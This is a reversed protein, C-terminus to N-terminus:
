GERREILDIVYQKPAYDSLAFRRNNGVNWLYVWDETLSYDAYEAPLSLYPCRPYIADISWRCGSVIVEDGVEIRAQQFEHTQEYGFTRDLFDVVDHVIDLINLAQVAM